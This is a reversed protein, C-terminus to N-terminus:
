EDRKSPATSEENTSAGGLSMEALNNNDSITLVCTKSMASISAALICGATASLVHKLKVFGAFLRRVVGM